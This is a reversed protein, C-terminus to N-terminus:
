TPRVHALVPGEGQDAIRDIAALAPEYATAMHHANAHILVADDVAIAVHGRWFLLDGRQLPAGPPLAPGLADRQLDSDPPCDRGCAMLAAQVLGSCDIGLISNGGWLYPAGFHLQAVTAADAFPVNAPRLHPKPVFAGTSTEFFAGAASVIRLRAGFSLHAIADRKFDPAPYLHTASVAVIHTGDVPSGLSASLVYGVYGDRAARVFAWGDRDEYRLVAAGFVLQRDRPGGPARRLDAVPVVISCPVGEVAIEEPAPAARAADVVRGNGPRFRRDSAPPTM